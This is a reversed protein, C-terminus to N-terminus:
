NDKEKKNVRVGLLFKYVFIKSDFKNIINNFIRNPKIINNIFDNQIMLVILLM